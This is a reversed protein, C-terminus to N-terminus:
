VWGRWRYVWWGIVEHLWIQLKEFGGAQPVPNFPRDAELEALGIFDCAVPRVPINLKRFLAESRRMHYASTVLIVEGARGAESGGGLGTTERNKNLWERLHNAEERTNGLLPLILVNSKGINWRELLVRFAESESWGLRRNGGGGLILVPAKGTRLLEAATLFRDIAEGAEFGLIDSSSRDAVGGLMVIARGSHSPSGELETWERQGSAGAYPRELSALLRGPVSTSGILFLVGAIVAFGSALGLRRKIGYFIGGALTALWIMGLPGVLAEIIRSIDAM